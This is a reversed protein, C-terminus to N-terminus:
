INRNWYVHFCMFDKSLKKVKSYDVDFFLMQKSGTYNKVVIKASKKFPIPVFGLVIYSIYMILIFLLRIIGDFM